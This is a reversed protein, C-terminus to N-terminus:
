EQAGSIAEIFTQDEEAHSSEAVALSQRHSEAAFEPSRADPVRIQIPRLGQQRLRDRDARGKQRTRARRFSSM